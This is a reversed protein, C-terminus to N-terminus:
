TRLNSEADSKRVYEPGSFLWANNYNNFIEVEKAIDLLIGAYGKQPKKEMDIKDKLLENENFFLELKEAAHGILLVKKGNGDFITKNIIEMIQRCDADIDPTIRKGYRYLACFYSNKSATLVPLVFGPYGSFPKAACDLTPIAAFPIDLGCSLGKAISFGIRLGTFSGPGATCLIGQLDSKQM